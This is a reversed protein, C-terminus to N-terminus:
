HFLINNVMAYCRGNDLPHPLGIRIHAHQKDVKLAQVAEFGSAEFIEKLERSVVPLDYRQNSSDFFCCRLQQVGDSKQKVRFGIKSADTSIAGLSPCTSGAQVYKADVINRAFLTDMSISESPLLATPLQNLPIARVFTPRGTVVTDENSHPLGRNNSNPTPHIEIVNGM